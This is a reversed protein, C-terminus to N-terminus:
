LILGHKRAGDENLVAVVSVGLAWTKVLPQLAKTLTDQLPPLWNKEHGHIILILRFSCTALDLNKFETSLEGAASPHRELISAIGLGLGNTLKERIDEIYEDFNPETQPSPASSKAEIVWVNPPNSVDFRLLLFEPIKIGDGLKQYTTSAEIRFCLEEDYSGFTMGSEDFKIKSM